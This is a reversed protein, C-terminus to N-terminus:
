AEDPHGRTEKEEQAQNREVVVIGGEVVIEIRSLDAVEAAPDTSVDGVEEVLDDANWGHHDGKGAQEKGPTQELKAIQVWASVLYDSEDHHQDGNGAQDRELDLFDGEKSM